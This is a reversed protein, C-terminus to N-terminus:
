MESYLRVVLCLSLVSMKVGGNTHMYLVIPVIAIGYM